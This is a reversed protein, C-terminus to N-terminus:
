LYYANLKYCRKVLVKDQRKFDIHGYINLYMNFWIEHYTYIYVNKKQPVQDFNLLM